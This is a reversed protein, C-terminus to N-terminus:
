PFVVGYHTSFFSISKATVLSVVQLNLDIMDGFNKWWYELSLLRNVCLQYINLFETWIAVQIYLRFFLVVGFGM